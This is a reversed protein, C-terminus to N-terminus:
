RVWRSKPLHARHEQLRLPQVRTEPCRRRGIADRGRTSVPDKRRFNAADGLVLVLEERRNCVPQIGSRASLETRGHLIERDLSHM